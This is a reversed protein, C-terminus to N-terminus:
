SSTLATKYVLLKDEDSKSIILENGYFVMDVFESHRLVLEEFSDIVKTENGTNDVKFLEFCWLNFYKYQWNCVQGKRDEMLFFLYRDNQQMDNMSDICSISDYAMFYQANLHNCESYYNEEYPSLHQMKNSSGTELDIIWTANSLM